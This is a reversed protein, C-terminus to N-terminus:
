NDPIGNGDWRWQDDGFLCRRQEMESAIPTQRYEIGLFIVTEDELALVLLSNKCTVKLPRFAPPLWLLRESGQMLWDERLWVHPCHATHRSFDTGPCQVLSPPLPLVGKDTVLHNCDSSVVVSKLAAWHNFLALRKSTRTNILFVGFEGFLHGRCCVLVINSVLAMNPRVPWDKLELGFELYWEDRSVAAVCEGTRCQWLKLFVNRDRSAKHSQRRAILKGDPSFFVIAKAPDWIEMESQCEVNLLHRSEKKSVDWVKLTNKDSLFAVIDDAPSWYHCRDGRYQRLRAIVDATATDFLNLYCESSSCTSFGVFRSGNSFTLEKPSIAGLVHREERTEAGLYFIEIAEDSLLAAKKSDPAAVISHFGYYRASKNKLRDHVFVYRKIRNGSFLFRGDASFTAARVGPPLTQEMGTAVDWLRHSSSAQIILDGSSSIKLEETMPRREQFESRKMNALDWIRICSKAYHMRSPNCSLAIYKGDPSFSLQSVRTASPFTWETQFTSANLLVISHVISAQCALAITEGTPSVALATIQWPDDLKHAVAEAPISTDWRSLTKGDGIFALTKNDPFWAAQYHMGSTEGPCVHQGLLVGGPVSRVVITDEVAYALRKGDYSFLLPNDEKMRAPLSVECFIGSPDSSGIPRTSSTDLDFFRIGHAPTALAVMNEQPSVAVGHAEGLVTMDGTSVKRSVVNAGEPKHTTILNNGDPSFAIQRVAHGPHRFESLIAGTKADWIHIAGGWSLSAIMDGKPSYVMKPAFKSEVELVLIESGWQESVSPKRNIWAPLEATYMGRVVSRTPCFLLASSYLQLPATEIAYRNSLLFRHADNLFVSLTCSQGHDTTMSANMINYESQLKVITNISCSLDGIWALAELWYLFKTRFFDCLKATLESTISSQLFHDVWHLCAYRLHPPFHQSLLKRPIQSALYGPLRVDCMDQKSLGDLVELCRTFLASHIRTADIQFAPNRCRDKDLFFDRFSQHLLTIPVSDTRIDMVSHLNELYTELRKPDRLIPDPHLQALTFLSAPTCLLTVLGVTGRLREKEKSTFGASAYGPVTGYIQDLNNQPSDLNDEIVNNRIMHLRERCDGHNLFRCCTAAWIFLGNSLISLSEIAEEGPWDPDGARETAIDRLQRRLFKTISNDAVLQGTKNLVTVKELIHKRYRDEKFGRFGEEVCREPRSTVLIRLQLPEMNWEAVQKFLGLLQPVDRDDHDCEDLADIVVVLRIPHALRKSFKSLPQYILHEWQETLGKSEINDHKQVAEAILSKLEPRGDALCKAITTLCGQSSRRDGGRSFFFSAGLFINSKLDMDNDLHIGLCLAAAVTRAITSKGAGSMSCLWFIPEGNEDGYWDQIVKLVDVQTRNM